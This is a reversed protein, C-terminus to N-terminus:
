RDAHHEEKKGEEHAEQLNGCRACREVGASDVCGDMFEECAELSPYCCECDPNSCFPAYKLRETPM